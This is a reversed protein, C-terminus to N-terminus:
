TSKMLGIFKKRKRTVLELPGHITRSITSQSVGTQIAMDRQIFLRKQVMFNKLRKICKKQALTCRKRKPIENGGAIAERALGKNNIINYITKVSVNVQEKKLQKQIFYPSLNNSFLEKIRDCVGSPIVM